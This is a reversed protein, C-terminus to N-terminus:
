FVFRLGVDANFLAEVERDSSPIFWRGNLYWEANNSLQYNYGIKLVFTTARDKESINSYKTNLLENNYETNVLTAEVRETARAVGVGVVIDQRHAADRSVRIYNDFTASIASFGMNMSNIYPNSDTDAESDFAYDYALTIAGNWINNTKFKLGAEAGASFFATPLDINADDSMDNLEDSYVVGNAAINFGIFPKLEMSYSPLCKMALVAYSCIILIKKM